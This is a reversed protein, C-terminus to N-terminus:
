EHDRRGEGVQAAVGNRAREEPRRGERLGDCLEAENLRIGDAGGRSRLVQNKAVADDVVTGTIELTAIRLQRDLLVEEDVVAEHRARQVRQHMGAGRALRPGLRTPLLRLGHEVEHTYVSNDVRALHVLVKGV